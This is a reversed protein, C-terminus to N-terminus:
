GSLFTSKYFSIRGPTPIGFFIMVHRTVTQRPDYRMGHRKGEGMCKNKHHGQFFKTWQCCIPRRGTYVYTSQRCIITPPQNTNPKSSLPIPRKGITYFAIQSSSTVFPLLFSGASLMTSGIIYIILIHFSLYDGTFILLNTHLHTKSIKWKQWSLQIGEICLARPTKRDAKHRIKQSVNFSLFSCASFSDWKSSLKVDTCTTSKSLM